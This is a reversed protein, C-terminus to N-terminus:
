HLRQALPRWRWGSSVTSLGQGLRRALSPSMFEGQAGTDLMARIEVRQLRGEARAYGRLIVLRRDQSIKRVPCVRWRVGALHQASAARTTRPSHPDPPESSAGGGSDSSNHGKLPLNRSAGM